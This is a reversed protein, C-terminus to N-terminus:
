AASKDYQQNEYLDAAARNFANMTEETLGCQEKPSKTEVVNEDLKGLGHGLQDLQAEIQQSFLEPEKESLRHLALMLEKVGKVFMEFYQKIQTEMELQIQNKLLAKPHLPDPVADDAIKTAINQSLDHIRTQIEPDLLSKNSHDEM